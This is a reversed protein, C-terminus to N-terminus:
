DVDWVIVSGNVTGVLYTLGDAAFAIAAARQRRLGIARTERGADVDFLRVTTTLDVRALMRGDPSWALQPIYSYKVKWSTLLELTRTQYIYVTTGADVAFRSGDPSFITENTIGKLKVTGVKRGESAQWVHVAKERASLLFWQGDMSLEAARWPLRYFLGDWDPLPPDWQLPETATKSAARTTVTPVSPEDATTNFDVFVLANRGKSFRGACFGPRAEEGDSRWGSPTRHWFRLTGENFSMVYKEDPSATLNAHRLGHRPNPLIQQPETRDRSWVVLNGNTLAVIQDGVAIVSGVTEDAGSYIQM